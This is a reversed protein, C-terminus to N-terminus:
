FLWEHGTAAEGAANFHLEVAFTAGRDKLESALWKQPATYGTGQYRSVIFSSIGRNSLEAQIKVALDSNYTHESVKGVSVAGGEIKGGQLRSHGVALAIKHSM